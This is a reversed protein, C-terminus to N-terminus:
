AASISPPPQVSVWSNASARPGTGVTTPMASPALPETTTTTTEGATDMSAATAEAAADLLDIGMTLDHGFLDAMDEEGLDPLFIHEMDFDKLDHLM